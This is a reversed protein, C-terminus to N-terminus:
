RSQKEDVWVVAGLQVLTVIQQTCSLPGVGQVNEWGNM